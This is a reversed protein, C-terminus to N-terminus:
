LGGKASRLAVHLVRSEGSAETVSLTMLGPESLSFSLSQADAISQGAEPDFAESAPLLQEYVTGEYGYILTVYEEDEYTERLCLVNLGDRDDVSVSGAADSARLKNGLYSVLQQSQSSQAGADTVNRYVQTGILMLTLASVAFLGVLLFVFVGSVAGRTTQRRM